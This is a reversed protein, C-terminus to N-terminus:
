EAPTPEAAAADEPEAPAAEEPEAPAAEEAEAAPAAEAEADPQAEPEAPPAAESEAPPAAESEAPAVAEAEAGPVEAPAEALRPPEPRVEPPEPTGPALKIIRFRVVGDALRLSRQLSELLDRPGNVQLLHYDAEVRHDIEYALARVGWDHKSVLSGQATIAAEADAVIQARRDDPATADLMLMLDYVPTM